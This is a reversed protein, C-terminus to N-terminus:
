GNLPRRQQDSGQGHGRHKGRADGGLLALREVRDPVKAATELAILAGMSHGILRARDVQLRDLLLALWASAEAITAFASGGSRGHGPLDVALSNHDHFPKARAQLTWVSHDMGAGHLWVITAARPRFPHGWDCVHITHGAVELQM